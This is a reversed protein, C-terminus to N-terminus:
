DKLIRSPCGSKLQVVVIYNWFTILVKRFAVDYTIGIGYRGETKIKRTTM